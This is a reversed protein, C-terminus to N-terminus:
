QLGELYNKIEKLYSFYVKKSGELKGLSRIGWYGSLVLLTVQKSHVEERIFGTLKGKELVGTMVKMWQQILEALVKRFETNWPTLEQTLNAAPCGYEAKLFKDKILLNHMLNYIAKVPNQEKQLPKIFNSTLVPKLLEEIIALGMEDKTKFHYFFAGKTVKTTAIIQDISTTQYGNSYILEFAKELIMLRTAAAKKM